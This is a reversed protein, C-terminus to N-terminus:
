DILCLNDGVKKFMRQNDSGRWKKTTPKNKNYYGDIIYDVDPIDFHGLANYDIIDYGTWLWIDKDPFSSKIEKCIEIVTDRNPPALPEGGLISLGTIFKDSLLRKLEEMTEKTFERGSAFDWIQSNHCGDCRINCGSVWLTVRTGDGNNLDCSDIKIYNM